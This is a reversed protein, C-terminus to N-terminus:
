GLRAEIRSLRETAEAVLRGISRLEATLQGPAPEPSEAPATWPRPGGGTMLWILPVGLMGALMQLRNARPASDDAEWAALTRTRVGLRAAADRLSLGAQERAATIRDGLTAKDDGYFDGEM